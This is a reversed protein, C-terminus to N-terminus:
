TLLFPPPAHILRDPAQRSPAPTSAAGAPTVQRSPEAPGVPLASTRWLGPFLLGMLWTM